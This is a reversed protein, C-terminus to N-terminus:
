EVAAYHLDVTFTGVDFADEGTTGFTWFVSPPIRPVYNFRPGVMEGVTARDM